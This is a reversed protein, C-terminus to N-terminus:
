LTQFVSTSEKLTEAIEQNKDMRRYIQDMDTVLDQTSNAVDTVGTAGLGSFGM